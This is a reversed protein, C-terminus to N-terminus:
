WGIKCNHKKKKRKKGERLSSSPPPGCTALWRCCRPLFRPSSCESGSTPCQLGPTESTRTSCRSSWCQPPHPGSKSVQTANPAGDLCQRAVSSTPSRTLSCEPLQRTQESCLCCCPGGTDSTPRQCLLRDSLGLQPRGACHTAPSSASTCSRQQLM